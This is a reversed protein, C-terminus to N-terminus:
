IRWRPHYEQCTTGLPIQRYASLELLFLHFYTLWFGLGPKGEALQTKLPTQMKTTHALSTCPLPIHLPCYAELAFDCAYRVGVVSLRGWKVPVVKDRCFGALVGSRVEPELPATLLYYAHTM